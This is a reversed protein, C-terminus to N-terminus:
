IVESIKSFHDLDMLMQDHQSIVLHAYRIQWFKVEVTRGSRLWEEKTVDWGEIHLAGLNFLCQFALADNKWEIWYRGRKM